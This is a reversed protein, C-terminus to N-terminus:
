ARIWAAAAIYSFDDDKRSKLPTSQYNGVNRSLGDTGDELTPCKLLAAQGKFIPSILQGTVDRFVSRRVPVYCPAFIEHLTVQIFAVTVIWCVTVTFPLIAWPCDLTSRVNHAGLWSIPATAFKRFAVIPKTMDTRGCPVVRCGFSPNEHFEINAHKVFIQRSFELKTLIPCSYLVVSM